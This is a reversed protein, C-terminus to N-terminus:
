EEPVFIIDDPEVLGLKERAVDEIYSPTQVYAEFRKIEDTREKQEQIQNEIKVIKGENQDRQNDLDIKKYAVIGFLMLVVFAIVGIGTGKKYRRRM